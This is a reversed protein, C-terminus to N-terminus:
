VAALPAIRDKVRLKAKSTPLRFTGTLATAGPAVMVGKLPTVQVGKPVLGTLADVGAWTSQVWQLRPCERIKPALDPPAGVLIRVASTDVAQDPEVVAVTMAEQGAAVVPGVWPDSLGGVVLLEVAM